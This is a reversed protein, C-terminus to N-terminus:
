FLFSVLGFYEDVGGNLGDDRVKLESIRPNPVTGDDCIRSIDSM